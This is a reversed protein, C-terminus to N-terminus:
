DEGWYIVGQGATGSASAATTELYATKGSLFAKIEAGTLDAALASGALAVVSAAVLLARSAIRMTEKRGSILISEISRDHGIARRRACGLGKKDHIRGEM